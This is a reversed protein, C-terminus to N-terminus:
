NESIEIECFFANDFHCSIDNMVKGVKVYLELCHEGDWLTNNDPQGPMWRTFTMNLKTRPYIWLNEQNEDSGAIYARDVTTNVALEHAINLEAKNNVEMLYGGLSGCKSIAAKVDLVIFKSLYYQRNNYTKPGFYMLDLSCDEKLTVNLSENVQFFSRLANNGTVRCMYTGADLSSPKVLLVSLTFSDQHRFYTVETDHRTHTQVSTMNTDDPYNLTAMNEFGQSTLKVIHMVEVKRLASWICKFSLYKTANISIFNPTAQFQLRGDACVLCVIYLLLNTVRRIRPMTVQASTMM